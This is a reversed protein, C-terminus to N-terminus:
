GNSVEIIDTIEGNPQKLITYFKNSSWDKFTESGDIAVLGEIVRNKGIRKAIIQATELRERYKAIGEGQVYQTTGISVTIQRGNDLQINEIAKRIREAPLPITDSTDDDITTNTQLTTISFEEGGIRGAVDTDRISSLITAGVSRLVEDGASQGIDKNIKGFDDIDMQIGEVPTAASDRDAIGIEREVVEEFPKKSMLGTLPDKARALENRIDKIARHRKYKSPLLDPDGRFQKIEEDGAGVRQSISNKWVSQKTKSPSKPTDKFEIFSKDITM